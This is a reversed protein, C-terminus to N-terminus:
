AASAACEESRRSHGTSAPTKPPAAVAMLYVLTKVSSGASTADSIRPDSATRAPRAANAITANANVTAVVLWKRQHSKGFKTSCSESWTPMVPGPCQAADAFGEPM